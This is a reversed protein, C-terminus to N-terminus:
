PYNYDVGCWFTLAAWAAPAAFLPSDLLDLLGGFAPVLYGSDKVRVDRKIASEVLDGLHGVVAMVIGFVIAQSTTLPGHVGGVLEPWAAMGALAVVVALLVAGAAGEVTKAPSVWPALKHRGIAMGTLYAGIDGSKITLVVYAALLAGELGPSLCRIRILFSGLLGLYAFMLVTVAINGLARETTRRALMVLAAGLIGGALWVVTPSLQRLTTDFLPNARGVRAQMEVWPALVLGAAVFAAWLTAPLYGGARCVRGMEFTGLVVLLTLLLTVPLGAMPLCGAAQGVGGPTSLWVDLVVTGIVAAIMLSGFVLRQAFM